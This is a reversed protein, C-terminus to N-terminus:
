KINTLNLKKIKEEIRNGKQNIIVKMEIKHKNNPM